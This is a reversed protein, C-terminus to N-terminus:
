LFMFHEKTTAAAMLGVTLDTIQNKYENQPWGGIVSIIMKAIQQSEEPTYEGGWGSKSILPYIPHGKMIEISGNTLHDELSGFLGCANAMRERFTYLDLYTWDPGGHSFTIKIRERPARTEGDKEQEARQVMKTPKTFKIDDVQVSEVTGDEYMVLAMADHRPGLTFQLFAANPRNSVAVEAFLLSIEQTM